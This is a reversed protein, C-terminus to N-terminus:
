GIVDAEHLPLTPAPATLGAAPPPPTQPAKKVPRISTIPYSPAWKEATTGRCSSTLM